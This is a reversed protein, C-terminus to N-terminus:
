RAKDDRLRAAWLLGEPRAHEGKAYDRQAASIATSVHCRTPALVELRFETEPAQCVAKPWGCSPCVQERRYQELARM